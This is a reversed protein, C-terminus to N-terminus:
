VAKRTEKSISLAATSLPETQGFNLRVTVVAEAAIGEGRGTFGLGETTTAKVSIRSVPLQLLAAIRERMADRHPGIKPTECIVTLDAHTIIGGQAAVLGAAHELFMASDADKWRADKPSFHMGIDGDCITGLLADTLAHLAVDADSHGELAKDHPIHIGGIVLRHMDHLPAVLRHVDYGKGTRIDGHAAAIIGEAAALDEPYTIKINSREGAVFAPSHGDRELLAADDTLTEAAYKRHLAIIDSLAFGQPTQVTYLGDRSKTEVPADPSTRKKVTDTVPLAPIAAAAGSLLADCVRGILAASLCPRAADHILVHEPPASGSAALAELGNLVSQQRAAGGDVILINEPPIGHLAAECLARHEPQIVICVAGIAPHTYFSDFARRLVPRGLLPAYQKPTALDGFRTGSGAAVILAAIPHSKNNM